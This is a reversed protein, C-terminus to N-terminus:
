GKGLPEMLEILPKILVDWQANAAIAFEAVSRMAEVWNRAHTPWTDIVSGNITISVSWQWPGPQRGPYGQEYAIIKVPTVQGYAYQTLEYSNGSM